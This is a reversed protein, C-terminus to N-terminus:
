YPMSAGVAVNQRRRPRTARRRTLLVGLGGVGLWATGPEPVASTLLVGSESSFDMGEPLDILLHATHGLDVVARGGQADGSSFVTLSAFINIPEDMTAPVWMTMLRHVDEHTPTGYPYGLPHNEYTQCETGRATPIDGRTVGLCLHYSLLSTLTSDMLGDLDLGIRVQGAGTGHLRISDQFMASSATGIPGSAYAVAHLTASFLDAEAVAYGDWPVNGHAYDGECNLPATGNVSASANGLHAGGDDHSTRWLNNCSYPSPDGLQANANAFAPLAQAPAHWAFLTVIILVVLQPARTPRHM